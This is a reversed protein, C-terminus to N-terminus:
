ICDARRFNNAFNLLDRVDIISDSNSDIFGCTPNIAPKVNCSKGFYQSFNLFDYLDIRGNSDSDLPPCQNEISTISGQEAILNYQQNISEEMSNNAQLDNVSNKKSIDDSDNPQLNNLGNTYPGEGKELCPCETYCIVEVGAREAACPNPYTIGDAGCVIVQLCVADVPLEIPSYNPLAFDDNVPESIVLKARDPNTRLNESVGVDYSNSNESNTYKLAVITFAAIGFIGLFFVLSYLLFKM